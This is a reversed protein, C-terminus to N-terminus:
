QPFIQKLQKRESAHTPKAQMCMELSLPEYFALRTDGYFKDRTLSLFGYRTLLPEKKRVEAIVLANRSLPTNQGILLLSEHALGSDYPPGLFIISIEEAMSRRLLEPADVIKSLAPIMRLVDNQFILARDSYGCRKLNERIIRVCTPNKEIFVARIAGRSLAEIGVAGNGAFCDYFCAGPLRASLIGFLSAKVRATLPRTGAGHRTTLVLGKKEGGLIRV